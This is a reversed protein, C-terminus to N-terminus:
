ANQFRIGSDVGPRVAPRIRSDGDPYRHVAVGARSEGQATTKNGDAESMAPGYGAEPRGTGTGSDSPKRCATNLASTGSPRIERLHKGGISRDRNHSLVQRIGEQGLGINFGTAQSIIAMKVTLRRFDQPNRM